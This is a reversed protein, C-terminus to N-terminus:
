RDPDGFPWAPVFATEKWAPDCDRDDSEWEWVSPSEVVWGNREHSFSIRINDAARVDMLDIQIHKPMKDSQPYSLDVHITDGSRVMEGSYDPYNLKWDAM